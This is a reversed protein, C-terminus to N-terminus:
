GAQVTEDQTPRYAIDLCGVNVIAFTVDKGFSEETKLWALVLTVMANFTAMKETTIREEQGRRSTESVGNVTLRIYLEHSTLTPQVVWVKTDVQPYFGTVFKQWAAAVVTAKEVANM